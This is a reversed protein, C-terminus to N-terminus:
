GSAREQSAFGCQRHSGDCFPKNASQGCRCIAVSPRAPDRPFEHGEADLIRVNGEVLIPGNDRIRITVDAAM